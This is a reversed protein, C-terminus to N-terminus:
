YVDNAPGVIDCTDLRIQERAKTNSHWFLILKIGESDTTWREKILFPNKSNQFKSFKVESM